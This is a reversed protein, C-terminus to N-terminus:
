NDPAGADVWCAIVNIQEQTLPPGEFPMSRNQTRLKAQAAYKKVEAYQTWDRRSVGDHCGDVACSSKMIPLIDNQWSTGPDCEFPTEEEPVFDNLDHYECSCCLMFLFFLLRWMNRFCQFICLTKSIAKQIV